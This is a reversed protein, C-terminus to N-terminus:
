PFCVDAHIIIEYVYQTYATRHVIVENMCAARAVCLAEPKRMSSDACPHRDLIGRFWYYGAQQKQTSFGKLGNKEAFQFALSQVEKKGLPFGSSSMNRIIKM